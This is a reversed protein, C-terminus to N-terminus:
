FGEADRADSVRIAQLRGTSSWAKRGTLTIAGATSGREVANARLSTTIHRFTSRNKAEQQLEFAIPRQEEFSFIRGKYTNVNYSSVVGTLDTEQRDLTTKSLYDWSMENIERGLMMDKKKIDGAYINAHEATESAIIPRHLDKISGEVKESLSDLKSPTIKKRDLHDNYTQYLSKSYDVPFGLTQTVVFDYLSYILHGLPTDKAATGVAWGGAIITAVLEWSGARPTAILIEANKLSPAQVIIEGNIALHTTLALSRQFGAMARAADYFNLENDNALRGEYSLLVDLM